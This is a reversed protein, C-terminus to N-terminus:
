SINVLMQVLRRNSVGTLVPDGAKRARVFMVIAAKKPLKSTARMQVTAWGDTGATTEAPQSVWGYPLPTVFVLADRVVYGRTDFIRFRATITDSRSRLPNPSFDLQNIVLREPPAVSTAPISIKGDPLRVAGPPLTPGKATVVASPASYSTTRGAANSAIVRVRVRNNVDASSLVYTSKSAGSINACNSGNVDCRQWTYEYSIPESGDWTGQSASLTQGEQATGSIGPLATNKPAQAPAERVVATAASTASATGDANKAVVVVRLRHNVDSSTAKYQTQNASGAIDSCNGGSSDCRRWVGSFSIPKTGGWAGLNASLTNGERATGEIKPRIQNVPATNTRGSASGISVLAVFAVLVLASAAGAPTAFKRRLRGNRQMHM